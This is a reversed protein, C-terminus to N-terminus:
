ASLSPNRINLVSKFGRYIPTSKLSFDNRNIPIRIRKKIRKVLRFGREIRQQIKSRLNYFFDTLEKCGM